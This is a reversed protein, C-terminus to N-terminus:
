TAKARKMWEYGSVLVIGALVLLAGAIFGPEIKENLIWAGLAVGFIPTMFSCVGLRSALYHRLLWFWVLFSIFSVVLTQFIMASWVLPTPNVSMEGSGAAAALLIIFAGLLQDVRARQRFQRALRIRRFARQYAAALAFQPHRQRFPPLPKADHFGHRQKFRSPRHFAHREVQPIAACRCENGHEAAHCAHRRIFASLATSAPLRALAMCAMCAM